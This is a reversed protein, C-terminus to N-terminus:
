GSFQKQYTQTIVEFVFKNVKLFECGIESGFVYCHVLIHCTYEFWFYIKIQSDAYFYCIKKLNQGNPIQDKELTNKLKGKFNAAM